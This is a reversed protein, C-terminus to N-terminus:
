TPIPTLVETDHGVQSPYEIMAPQSPCALQDNQGYVLAELVARATTKGGVWWSVIGVIMKLEGYVSAETGVGCRQTEQFSARGLKGPLDRENKLEIAV